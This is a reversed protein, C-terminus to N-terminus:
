PLSAMRNPESDSDGSAAGTRRDPRSLPLGSRHRGYAIWRWLTELPGAWHNRVLLIALVVQAGFLGLAVWVMAGNGLHAFSGFSFGLGVLCLTGMLYNSLGMQGAPAVLKLWRARGSVAIRLVTLAIAMGLLSGGLIFGTAFVSRSAFWVGSDSTADSAVFLANFVAGVIWLAADVQMSWFSGCLMRRLWGSQVWAVGLLMLGLVQFGLVGWGTLARAYDSANQQVGTWGIDRTQSMDLATSTSVTDRTASAHPWLLASVYVAGLILLGGVVVNGIPSRKLFVVVVIAGLVAYPLLIDGWWLLLGHLAGFVLLTFLRRTFFRPPLSARREWQLALGAGFLLSFIPYFKADAVIQLLWYAAHDLDATHPDIFGRPADLPNLVARANILLIGLLSVGRLIDLAEYRQTTPTQDMIAVAGGQGSTEM